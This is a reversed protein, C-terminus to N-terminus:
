VSKVEQSVKTSLRRAAFYHWLSLLLGVGIGIYATTGPIMLAIGAAVFLTRELWGTRKFWYGELGVSLLFVGIFAMVAAVIVRTPDGIMLLEPYYAFIFPVLFIVIGLRMSEWGVKMFSAQAIAAAVFANLCVPPTLMATLGYYFVFFHAVIPLMGLRVLAPALLIACLMYVASTPMGMGLITAAIATFILLIFLNGGALTVMGGTLRVGVGTLEIGGVLISALCIVVALGPMEEVGSALANGIKRWGMGKGKMLWSVVVVAVVSYVCATQPSMNFVTLFLILLLIPVTYLWGEKLVSKISPLESAPMGRLGNKAAELDLMIFLAGFYLLAPILAAGMITRYSEGLFDMMLFAAIGLVPPMIQGGNSAVAEVAAAYYPKYGIKIMMPITIPGVLAVNAIGSGSITGFLASALEAVKAPGGRFRGMLAHALSTLFGGAESVQLFAGFILFAALLTAFIDLLRGYIGHPFVYVMEAVRPLGQSRSNLFAPMYGAVFPYLFFLLGIITLTLGATRRVGELILLVIIVTFAQELLTPPQYPREVIAITYIIIYLNVAISLVVAVADYWPLRNRPAGKTAPFYLYVLALAFMLVLADHRIPYIFINAYNFVGSMYLLMYAPLVITAIRIIKATVGTYHRRGRRGSPPPQSSAVQPQSM